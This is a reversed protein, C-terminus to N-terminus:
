GGYKIILKNFNNYSYRDSLAVNLTLVAGCWTGIRPLGTLPVVAVAPVATVVPHVLGM